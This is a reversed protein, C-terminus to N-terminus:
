KLERTATWIGAGDLQAKRELGEFLDTFHLNPPYPVARAMGARVMEANVMRPAEFSDSIYVYALIRAHRDRRERDFQLHVKRGETLRRNYESAEAAFPEKAGVWRNGIKRRLEPSDIGIYRVLAGNSLEITDGDVVRKVTQPESLEEGFHSALSLIPLSLFLFISALFGFCWGSRRGLGTEQVAGGTKQDM